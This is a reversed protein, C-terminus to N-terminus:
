SRTINNVYFYDRFIRWADVYIQNWEKQPDIKMELGNLELKGAGAKQGPTLKIIGYDSGSRYIAMKGDSSLSATSARDLIEETKEDALNFKM